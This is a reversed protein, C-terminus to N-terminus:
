GGQVLREDSTQGVGQVRKRGPAADFKLLDNFPGTSQSRVTAFGQRPELLEDRQVVNLSQIITRGVRTVKDYFGIVEPQRSNHSNAPNFWFRRPLIQWVQDRM